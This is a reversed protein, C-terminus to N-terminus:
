YSELLDAWIDTILGIDPEARLNIGKIIKISSM